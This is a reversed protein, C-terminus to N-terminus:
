EDIYNSSRNVILINARMPNFAAIFQSSRKSNHFDTFSIKASYAYKNEYWMSLLANPTCFHTINLYAPCRIYLVLVYKEFDGHIFM